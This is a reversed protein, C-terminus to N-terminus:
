IFLDITFLLYGFINWNPNHLVAAASIYHLLVCSIPGGHYVFAM